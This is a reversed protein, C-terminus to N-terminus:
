CRRSGPAAGQGGRMTDRACFHYIHPREGSAHHGTSITYIYSASAGAGYFPAVVPRRRAWYVAAPRLFSCMHGAPTTSSCRVPSSCSAAPGHDRGNRAIVFSGPCLCSLM